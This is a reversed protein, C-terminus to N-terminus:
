LYAIQAEEPHRERLCRYIPEQARGHLLSSPPFGPEYTRVILPPSNPTERLAESEAPGQPSCDNRALYRLRKRIQDLHM